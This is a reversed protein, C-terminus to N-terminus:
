SAKAKKQRKAPKKKAEDAKKEAEEPSMNLAQRRINPPVVMMQLSLMIEALNVEDGSFLKEYVEDPEPAGNMGLFKLCESLAECKDTIGETSSINPISVGSKELHRIMKWVRDPPCTFTEGGWTLKIEEFVM